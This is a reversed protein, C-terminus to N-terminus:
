SVPRIPWRSTAAADRRSRPVTGLLASGPFPSRKRSGARELMARERRAYRRRSDLSAAQGDATSSMTSAAGRPRCPPGFAMYPAISAHRGAGALNDAVDQLFATNFAAAEEFTLPPVLRTKTRGPASAKAMVAVGCGGVGEVARVSM